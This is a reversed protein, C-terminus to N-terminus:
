ISEAKLHEFESKLKDQMQPYLNDRSLRDIFIQIVPLYKNVLKKKRAIQQETQTPLKDLSLANDAFDSLKIVLIDPDEIEEKVHEAYLENKLKTYDPSDESIGRQKLQADFDPNSLGSVIRSVREGYKRQIEMLSSETQNEGGEAQGLNSLKEGQDEVADHLLAAILLDRDPKEIMGSVRAAVGMVHAIYPEGSPRDKQDIHLSFSLMLADDIVRRDEPTYKSSLEKSFVDVDSNVKEFQESESRSFKRLEDPVPSITENM